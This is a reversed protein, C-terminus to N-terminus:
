KTESFANKKAFIRDFFLSRGSFSSGAAKANKPLHNSLSAYLILEANQGLLNQELILRFVCAICRMPSAKWRLIPVFAGTM